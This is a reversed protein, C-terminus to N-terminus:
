SVKKGYIRGINVHKVNGLKNVGAILCLFKLQTAQVRSLITAAKIPKMDQLWVHIHRHM